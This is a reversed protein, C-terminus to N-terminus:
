VVWVQSWCLLNNLQHWENPEAKKRLIQMETELKTLSKILAYLSSAGSSFMAVGLVTRRCCGDFDMCGVYVCELDCKKM